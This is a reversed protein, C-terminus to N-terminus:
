LLLEYLDGFAIATDGLWLCRSLPDVRTVPGTLQRYAMDRPCYYVATALDGPRAAQLARNLEEIGDQALLKRPQPRQEKAALAERLGKLADFMGFIKARRSPPMPARVQAM